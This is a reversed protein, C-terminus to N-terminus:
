VAESYTVEDFQFQIDYADDRFDRVALSFYTGYVKRGHRDRFLIIKGLWLKLQDYDAQTLNTLLVDLTPHSEDYTVSIRRGYAFQQIAGEIADTTSREWSFAEVRLGAPDLPNILLIKNPKVILEPM